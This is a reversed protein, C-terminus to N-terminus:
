CQLHARPSESIRSRTKAGPIQPHVRAVFAAKLVSVIYTGGMTAFCWHKCQCPAAYQKHTSTDNQRCTVHRLTATVKDELILQLTFMSNTPESISKRASPALPVAACCPRLVESVGVVAQMLVRSAEEMM